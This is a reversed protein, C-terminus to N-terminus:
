PKRELDFHECAEREGIENLLAEAGYHRVIDILDIDNLLPEIDASSVDLVVRNRDVGTSVNVSDATVTFDYKM